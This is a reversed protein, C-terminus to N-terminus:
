GHIGEASNSSKASAGCACGGPLGCRAPSIRTRTLDPESSPQLDHMPLIIRQDNKM